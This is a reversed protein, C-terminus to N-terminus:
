ARETKAGDDSLMQIPEDGARRESLKLHGRGGGEARPGGSWGRGAEAAGAGGGGRSEVDVLSVNDSSPKKVGFGGRFFVPAGEVGGGRRVM